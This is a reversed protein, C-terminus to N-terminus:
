ARLVVSIIVDSLAVCDASLIPDSGMVKVLIKDALDRAAAESNVEHKSYKGKVLVDIVNDHDHSISIQNGRVFEYTADILKM